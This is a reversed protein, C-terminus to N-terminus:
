HSKQYYGLNSSAKHHILPVRQGEFTFGEALLARPFAGDFGLRRKTEELFAFAALRVQADIDPM